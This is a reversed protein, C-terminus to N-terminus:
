VNGLYAKAVDPNMRIEEGTGELVIRGTEIVYARDSIKLASNAMQEVLLVTVGSANIEKLLDFVENVIIPALGLSPEDLILFCPETMLARAIALMQQEGGSLTGGLQEKREELRPFREFISEIMINTKKSDKVIHAGLLINEMVTHQPFIQRGEPVIRIGKRVLQDPRDNTIDKGQFSISGSKAKHLAVVTNLITSKGAGNAGLVTVIEGQEVHLSINHVVETKGYSVTLDKVQLM